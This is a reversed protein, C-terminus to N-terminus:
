WIRTRVASRERRPSAIWSPISSCRASRRSTRQSTRMSRRTLAQPASLTGAAPEWLEVCLRWPLNPLPPQRAPTTVTQIPAIYITTPTPSQGFAVKAAVGVPDAGDGSTEWGADVVEDISSYAGVKPPAKKPTVKPLPGVILLNSFSTNDVLPTELDIDVNAIMDYNKSM